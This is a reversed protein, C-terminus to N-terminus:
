QKKNECSQCTLLYQCLGWAISRPRDVVWAALTSEVIPATLMAPRKVAPIAISRIPLLGM